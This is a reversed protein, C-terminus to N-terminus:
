SSTCFSELLPWVTSLIGHEAYLKAFQLNHLAMGGKATGYWYSMGKKFPNSDELCSMEVGGHPAMLYTASSAVWVVRVSASHSRKATQILLPTLLKTFLFHGMTMVGFQLEYGQKSRADGPPGMVAANNWLVDLRKEKSLFEEAARKVAKLDDLELQLFVLEGTSTPHHNKIEYM